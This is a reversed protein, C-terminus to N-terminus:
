FTPKPEPKPDEQKAKFLSEFAAEAEPGTLASEEENVANKCDDDM